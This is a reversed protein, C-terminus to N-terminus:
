WFTVVDGGIKPKLHICHNPIKIQFKVWGNCHSNCCFPVQLHQKGDIKNNIASTIQFEIWFYIIYM